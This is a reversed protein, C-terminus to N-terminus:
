LWGQRRFLVVMVAVIAAMAALVAPFGYPWPFPPWVREFNMGYIGTIVALSAFVATIVTLVKMVENLRNSAASLYVDLSGAILDRHTDVAETIRLLHDFVDRLYLATQPRVLPHHALSSVLDRLPAAMRRLHLLSRKCAVIEDLTRPGPRRFLQDELRELVSELRDLAPFYTDVACDLLAYLIYDAGARDTAPAHDLRARAEDLAAVPRPHVTVVYRSSAFIDVEDWSLGARERGPRLAHVTLFLYGDYAELKPRQRQKLADEVALPHFGFVERLVRVDAEQPGTMDVWVVGDPAALLDALPRRPDEEVRDTRYVTVRM